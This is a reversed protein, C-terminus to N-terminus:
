LAKDQIYDEEVMIQGRPCLNSTRPGIDLIYMSISLDTNYPVRKSAYTKIVPKFLDQFDDPNVTVRGVQVIGGNLISLEDGLEVVLWEYFSTLPDNHKYNLMSRVMKPTFKIIKM